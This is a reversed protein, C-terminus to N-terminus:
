TASQTTNATHNRADNSRATHNKTATHSKTSSKRTQTTKKAQAMVGAEAQNFPLICILAALLGILYKKMNTAKINSPM